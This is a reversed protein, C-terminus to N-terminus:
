RGGRSPRAGDRPNPPAVPLHEAYAPRVPLFAAPRGAAAAAPHRLAPDLAHEPRFPQRVHTTGAPLLAAIEALDREKLLTPVVTTRFTVSVKSGALVELSQQVLPWATPVGSLRRYARPPAKVDLAVADLLGSALLQRLVAPRSGNTDLKVAFGLRKLTACFDPLDAQLTPEGGSLVVGGLRGARGELRRLVEAEPIRGPGDPLLEGNHCFPCRFNCGQAFVIAATHGPFDALTFPLFGGIKM